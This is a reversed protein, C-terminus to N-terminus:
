LVPGRCGDRDYEVDVGRDLEELIDELFVGSVTREDPGGVEERAGINDVELM